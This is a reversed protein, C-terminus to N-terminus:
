VVNATEKQRNGNAAGAAAPEVPAFTPAPQKPLPPLNRVARAEDKTLIGANVQSILLEIEDKPSGQLLGAYDFECFQGPELMPKLASEIRSTWPMLVYKQLGLNAEAVGTGWNSVAGNVSLLNIPMGYIRAAEEVQMGRSELFQADQNNMTWPSFKLTRNVFAIEGAHDAGGIKDNLSQKIIGAETEDVDEGEATTVMGAILAGKTFTRNAAKEGAMSTQFSQRFLTIPSLGRTGDMSMGLVQHMEGTDYETTSGDQMAVEFHKLPGRWTVKKLALPHVPWAGIRVGAESTLTKLFTEAHNLLHLVLTETWSFASLDYPGAPADSLWSDVETRNSKTGEYVKLPLTAITGAILAQSRYVATLGMVSNEDVSSPSMGNIRLWEVMAPDAPNM